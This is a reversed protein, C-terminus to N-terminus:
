AVSADRILTEITAPSRWSTITLLDALMGIRAVPLTPDTTGTDCYRLDRRRLAVNLNIDGRLVQQWTAVSGTVQWTVTEDAGAGGDALTVTRAGLDVRWRAPAAGGVPPPAIVLFSEAAAAGWRTAFRGSLRFLGSQLLEGLKVYLRPVPRTGDAGRAVPAPSDVRLDPPTDAVSWERSVQVYGLKAALGNITAIVDPEILYAPVSWGRGVSDTGIRSTQWIKFDGRGHREREPAFCASTIGPRPRVGLFRFIGDAVSEADDVLDEYRVRHCRGPFREEVAHIAATHDAWFRALALVGNGPAAAAYSDFGFGKLGWPCAEMGSAIVDMPHRYLCIFRADPFLRLILDAHRATHMSKDCYRKKGRRTLHQGIMETATQRVGALVPEPVDPTVGDKNKLAPAGSLVSWTGALQSCVAALDTEPPCALDPHADLLFRLLTSGSRAICLVFVPDGVVSSM